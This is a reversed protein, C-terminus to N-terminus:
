QLTMSDGLFHVDRFLWLVLFNSVGIISQLEQLTVTKRAKYTQILHLVKRLKDQHLRKEMVASDLEIDLFFYVTQNPFRYRKNLDRHCLQLDRPGVVLFDDLLHILKGCIGM